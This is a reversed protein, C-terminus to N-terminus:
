ISTLIPSRLTGPYLNPSVAARPQYCYGRDAPWLTGMRWDFTRWRQCNTRYVKEQQVSWINYDVPNLDPSNPSWLTPPIFDTVKRELFAVTDAWHAQGGYQQCVFYGGKSIQLIDPLLKQALLIDRYYAGNVKACMEIFHVENCGLKSFGVSM